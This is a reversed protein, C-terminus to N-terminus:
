KDEILTFSRRICSPTKKPGALTSVDICGLQEANIESIYVSIEEDDLLMTGACAEDPFTVTMYCKELPLTMVGNKVLYNVLTEIDAAKIKNACPASAILDYLKKKM